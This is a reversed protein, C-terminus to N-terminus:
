DHLNTEQVSLWPHRVGGCSASVWRGDVARGFLPQGRLRDMDLGCVPGGFSKKLHTPSLHLVRLSTSVSDPSLSQTVCCGSLLGPIQRPLPLYTGGEPVPMRATYLLHNSPGQSPWQMTRSNLDDILGHMVCGQQFGEM